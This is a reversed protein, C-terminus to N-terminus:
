KTFIMCVYACVCRIVLASKTNALNTKEGVDTIVDYLHWRGKLSILKYRDQIWASEGKSQFGIPQQRQQHSEGVNSGISAKIVPLLSIGDYPRTPLSIGLIDAVTPVIDSTVATYSTQTPRPIMVPWEIIGPVRVGGELLSRKRGSFPGASGPTGDEPGNDSCFSILTNDAVGVRIYTHM